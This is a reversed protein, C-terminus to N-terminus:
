SKAKEFLVAIPHTYAGSIYKVPEYNAYFESPWLYIYGAFGKMSQATTHLYAADFCGHNEMTWLERKDWELMVVEFGGYEAKVRDELSEPKPIESPQCPRVVPHVNIYDDKLLESGQLFEGGDSSSILYYWKEPEIKLRHVDDSFPGDSDIWKTSSELQHEYSYNEFDFAAKEDDTLNKWQTLNTKQNM